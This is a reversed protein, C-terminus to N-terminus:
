SNYNELNKYIEDKIFEASSVPAIKGPIALAWICKRKQKKAEEFDIGGPASALDIILVDSKTFKLQRKRVITEPVTNIIIDFDSFKENLFNINMCTYGYAKIWALDKEKRAACTVEAGLAKFKQAVVKAVRGFGLVLVTSGQLNKEREKIAIDITGEATAITNLITLEESKMVDIVKGFKSNLKDFINEKLSGAIFIKEKKSEGTVLEKINIEKESFPSNISIGNKSFPIASIIIHSKDIADNLSNCMVIEDDDQIDNANELGYTYVNFGDDKLIRALKIIRLDGGLISINNEKM